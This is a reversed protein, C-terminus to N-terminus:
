KLCGGRHYEWMYGGTKVLRGKCCDTIHSRSLGLTDSAINIGDWTKIYKGELDYQDIKKQHGKAAREVTEGYHRNYDESCWELNDARNNTKNEDKHNVQPYNYPNPLFAMAVIRHVRQTLQKGNQMLGCQLYGKTNASQKMVKNKRCSFIRGLNSVMYYGEYGVVDKWVEM